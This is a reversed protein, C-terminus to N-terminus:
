LINTKAGVMQEMISVHIIELKTAGGPSKIPIHTCDISCVVDPFRAVDFFKRKNAMMLERTNPFKLFKGLCRALHESIEAIIRIVSSQSITRLDGCVIQMSGTAYFRLATLVKIHIPVPLGRQNHHLGLGPSVLPITKERICEDTLITFPNEGNRIYILPAPMDEVDKVYQSPEKRGPIYCDSKLKKYPQGTNKCQKTNKMDSSKDRKKCMRDPTICEVKKQLSHLLKLREEGTFHRYQEEHFTSYHRQISSKKIILHKSCVLCLIDGGEEKCLFDSAWESQFRIYAKKTAEMTVTYFLAVNRFSIVDPCAYTVRVPCNRNDNAKDGTTDRRSAGRLRTRWIYVVVMTQVTPVPVKKGTKVIIVKAKQDLNVIISDIVNSVIGDNGEEEVKKCFGIWDEESSPRGRSSYEPLKVSELIEKAVARRFDIYPKRKSKSMQSHVVFANFICIDDISENDSDIDSEYNESDFVSDILSAIKDYDSFKVRKPSMKSLMSGRQDYSCGPDIPEISLKSSAM